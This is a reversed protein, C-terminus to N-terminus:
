PASRSREIFAKGEQGHFFGNAFPMGGMLGALRGMAEDADIRKDLVDRYTRAVATMDTHLPSLRFRRIGATEMEALEGVLNVCAHSLTQLGNVAVFSERDLTDVEMGDPHADCAFQCTDRSLGRVRAHYCRASIALPLRGFVQVELEASTSKALAALSAFPLEGPLCVRVAGRRVLYGLTDENYVNVTPGIAHPRGALLAAATIDNAEIFLDQEGALERIANLEREDTILTLTSRVIEKGAAELRDLVEGIFPATLSARKWCVTEGISVTDVPSEDAVRFYFDRWSEPQWNFLVPGLTLKSNKMKKAGAKIM